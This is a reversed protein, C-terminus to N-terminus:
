MWKILGIVLGHLLSFGLNYLSVNRLQKGYGIKDGPSLEMYAWIHRVYLAIIPSALGLMLVLEVPTSEEGFVMKPIRFLSILMFLMGGFILFRQYIRTWTLGIKVALTIKNSALDSEIDRTNNINLVATALLGFGIATIWIDGAGNPNHLYYTGAVLVPGFFTWVFIDGLGRYGFSIKGYTYLIASAIALIGIGLMMWFFWGISLASFLLSIGSIFTFVVTILLAIKMQSSSIVGSALARDTRQSAIDTGKIFDGYDNAFNSLIQLLIATLLGLLFVNLQFSNQSIAMFSGLLSGAAALPLTKPRAAQVWHAIRM